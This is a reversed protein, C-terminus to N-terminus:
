RSPYHAQPTPQYIPTSSPQNAEPLAEASPPNRYTVDSSGRPTGKTEFTGLQSANPLGGELNELGVNRLGLLERSIGEMRGRIETILDANGDIKAAQLQKHLEGLEAELGEVRAGGIATAPSIKPMEGIARPIDQAALQAVGGPLQAAEKGRAALELAQQAEPAQVSTEVKPKPEALTPLEAKAVEIKLANALQVAKPTLKGTLDRAGPIAGATAVLGEMGAQAIANKLAMKDEPTANPSHAKEWLEGVKRWTEPASTLAKATFLGGVVSAAGPVAGLGATMAGAPSEMFEVTPTSINNVFAALNQSANDGLGTVSKFEQWTPKPLEKVPKQVEEALGKGVEPTPPVGLPSMGAALTELFGRKPEPQATKTETKPALIKTRITQTIQDPSMSDPFEVEGVGDIQVTTPM